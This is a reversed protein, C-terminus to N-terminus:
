IGTSGFGNGGRETNSLESEDVLTVLIPYLSPHTIQLLRVHKEVTYTSEQSDPFWKIAGLLSGRYGCDIIGTHNALILPTKSFSSRPFMLFASPIMNYTMETKIQLDVMKTKMPTDFVVSEPCFLDFGSNPYESHNNHTAIHTTYIDTLEQRLVPDKSTIAIKLHVINM